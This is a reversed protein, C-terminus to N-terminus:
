QAEEVITIRGQGYPDAYDAGIQGNLKQTIYDILVANDIRNGEELVTCGEFATQGDGKSLLTYSSGAVKYTKELELPEGGVMVNKVRYEGEYGVCMSFEDEQCPSDLYSHVEYTMGAVQLFGGFESPIARCGWELANLLQQGTVEIVTLENGFPLVKIIDGYTIDGKYIDTRVGGGNMIAVDAGTMYLLSDAVLDGMNTEARRVMRIKNGYDDKVEPDYITLDVTSTAVVTKMTENLEELAETVKITM